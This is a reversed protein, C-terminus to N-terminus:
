DLIYEFSKPLNDVIDGAIMSNMSKEYTAFDGALGHIYMAIICADRSSYGQAMLSSIIGTLVDGSGGTAMGPNGTSNFFLEGSPAVLISHAGKLILYVSYKFCFEKALQIRQFTSSKKGLLREFEGVHPTFISGKPVFSLWTKNEALINIADADFILPVSSNQILLKLMNVTQKEKGIGSGVAISSFSSVDMLKTIYSDNEDANCMAEPIAMQFATYGCNPIHTTLLGVGARLCAKSALIAAGVKGKSGAIILAHGYMGKHDFKGRPKLIFRVDEKEIFYSNSELSKLYDLDLGIPLCVIDGVYQYNEPFLLSLKPQQFTLTYNANFIVGKNADNNEAYLGTPIDISVKICNQSNMISIVKGILGGVDKSLGNGLIADVIVTNIEAKFDLKTDEHIEVVQVGSINKLREYNVDFDESANQAYRVVYLTVIYGELALKRAVVLGDGGNNGLGVFINFSFSNDFKEKLWLYCKNAAREMLDVSSIPENNITYQDAEKIQSASLIKM